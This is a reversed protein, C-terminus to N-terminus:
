HPEDAPQHGLRRSIHDIASEAIVLQWGNSSLQMRLGIIQGSEIKIQQMAHNPDDYQPLLIQVRGSNGLLGEAFFLGVLQEPTPYKARAEPSLGALLDEAQKRAAPALALAGSMAEENGRLAAWVATQFATRPSANGVNRFSELPVVAQEPNRSRASDNADDPPRLPKASATSQLSAFERRAATLAAETAHASEAAQRNRTEVAAQLRRHEARVPSLRANRRRWDDAEDRLRARHVEFGMIAGLGVLVLLAFAALLTRPSIAHM